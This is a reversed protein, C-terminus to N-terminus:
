TILRFVPVTRGGFYKMTWMISVGMGLHTASKVSKRPYPTGDPKSHHLTKHQQRGVLEDANYRTITEAAPNVFTTNGQLDVGLIGESVSKLILNNQYSLKELAERKQAYSM